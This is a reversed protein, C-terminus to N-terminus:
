IRLNKILPSKNVTASEVTKICSCYSHEKRSYAAIQINVFSFDKANLDSAEPLVSINDVIDGSKELNEENFSFDKLNKEACSYACVAAPKLTDIKSTGCSINDGLSVSM